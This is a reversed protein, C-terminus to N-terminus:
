DLDKFRLLLKCHMFKTLYHRFQVNLLELTYIMVNKAQPRNVWYSFARDLGYDAINGVCHCRFYYIFSAYAYQYAMLM